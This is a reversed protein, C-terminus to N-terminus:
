AASRGRPADFGRVDKLAEDWLPAPELAGPDRAANRALRQRMGALGAQRAAELPGGLHRPWGGAHVMALDLLAAQAVAGEGLVRAAANAQAAHWLRAAEAPDITEATLGQAEGLAELLAPLAADPVARGEPGKAYFGFGGGALAAILQATGEPLDAGLRAALRGPGAAQMRAFPGAGHGSATLAADLAFPDAGAAALALAARWGAAEIVASAPPGATAEVVTCLGMRACLDGLAEASPRAGAPVAIEALRAGWPSAALALGAARDPAPGARPWIEARLTPGGGGASPKAGPGAADLLLAEGPAEEPAGVFRCAERRAEAETAHPSGRARAGEVARALSERAAAPDPAVRCVSLGAALARGTLADALRGEGAIALPRVAARGAGASPITRREARRLRALAAFAPDGACDELAADELDRAAEPPLLLAAEVARLIRGPAANPLGDLRAKRRALAASAEAGYPVPPRPGPPAATLGRAETVAADLVDEEVVRDMFGAGPARTVPCPERALLLDLAPGAGALCAARQIVGAGPVLGIAAGGPALRTRATALRLHAALALALGAGSVHGDLAAVVPKASRALGEAIAGLGAWDAVPDACAEGDGEAFLGAQGCLVLARVEPDSQATRLADSLDTRVRPDLPRPDVLRLVAVGERRDLGVREESM